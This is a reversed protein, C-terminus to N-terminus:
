EEQLFEKTNLLRNRIEADQKLQRIDKSQQDDQRCTKENIKEQTAMFTQLKKATCIQATMLFFFFLLFAMFLLIICGKTETM